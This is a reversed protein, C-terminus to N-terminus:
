NQDRAFALQAQISVEPALIESIPCRIRPRPAAPDKPPEVPINGQLVVHGEGFPGTRIPDSPGFLAVTPVGLAAAMHMAGTDGTIVGRSRRILSLLQTLSTEGALQHWTPVAGHLLQGLEVDSPGGTIVIPISPFGNQLGLELDRFSDGPWQKEPKSAGINLLIPAAGACAGSLFEAAWAESAPDSPLERILPTRPLGLLDLFRQYQLVMHERPHGPTIRERTWLWSQEKARKRDFGLVRPAGSLRALLASKQLRQLDIALDYGERQVEQVVARFGALGTGKAWVHVRDVAPHGDVLPRSLPHVAWGITADPLYHKIGNAVVLANVVDGIAGLRM